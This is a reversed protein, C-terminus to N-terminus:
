YSRQFSKAEHLSKSVITKSPRLFAAPIQMKSTLPQQQTLDTDWCRTSVVPKLIVSQLVHMVLCTIQRLRRHFLCVTIQLSQMQYRLKYDGCLNLRWGLFHSPCIYSLFECVRRTQFVSTSCRPSITICIYQLSPQHYRFILKANRKMYKRVLRITKM